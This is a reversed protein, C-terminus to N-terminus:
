RSAGGDRRMQHPPVTSLSSMARRIGHISHANASSCFYDDDWRFSPDRASKEGNESFSELDLDFDCLETDINCESWEGSEENFNNGEPQGRYIHVTFPQEDSEYGDIGLIYNNEGTALSEALHDRADLYSFDLFLAMLALFANDLGDSCDYNEGSNPFSTTSNNDVNAATLSNCVMDVSPDWGGIGMKNIRLHTENLLKTTDVLSANECTKIEGEGEGESGDLPIGSLSVVHASAAALQFGVSIADNEGDDDLDQDFLSSLFTSLLSPDLGAPLNDAFADIVLSMTADESLFGYLLGNELEKIVNNETVVDATIIAHSIHAEILEGENLIPLLFLSDGGGMTLKGNNIMADHFSVFPSCDEGFSAEVIDFDCTETNIDCQSWEGSEEDFENEAPEGKYFNVTFVKGEGEYGQVGVMINSKGTVVSESLGERFDVDGLDSALAVVAMFGNNLGGACDYPEGSNPFSTNPDNDVDAATNENCAMEATTDLGGIGLANIRM